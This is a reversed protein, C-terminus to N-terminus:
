IVHIHPEEPVTKRCMVGLACAIVTDDHRGEPAGYKIGGPKIEYAFSKHENILVPDPILQVERGEIALMYNEILHRKKPADFYFGVVPLGRNLLREFIPDGVGTSDILFPARNYKMCTKAILEEQYTWEVRNLRNFHVMRMTEEDFVAIVTFDVQKALDVGMVYRRDPRPDTDMGGLCQELNKFVGAMGEIFEAYIEQRRVLEPLDDELEKVREAPILPNDYSTYHFYAWERYRPDLRDQAKAALEHFMNKGKPTGGIIQRADYDITMPRIANNWLYEDNLIVGAENLVVLRYGFGEINEPKDASRFDCVQGMLKLTPPSSRWAWLAYPLERLAPLFYREYYKGINAYVTDVWLVPGVGRAMEEMVHHAAGRTFGFRRGKVVVKVRAPHSFIAHQQPTFPLRLTAVGTERAITRGNL